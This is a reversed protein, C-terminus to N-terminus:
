HEAAVGLPSRRNDSGFDLLTYEAKTSRQPVLTFEAGGINSGGRTVNVSADLVSNTVYGLRADLTDYWRQNSQFGLSSGSASTWSLEGAVGILWTPAIQYDYAAQLGGRVSSPDTSAAFGSLDCYILLSPPPPRGTLDAAAACTCFSVALAGAAVSNVVVLTGPVV